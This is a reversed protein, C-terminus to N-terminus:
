AKAQQGALGSDSKNVFSRVALGVPFWVWCALRFDQHILLVFMVMATGVLIGTSVQGLPTADAWVLRLAGWLFGIFCGAALFGYQASFALYTDEIQLANPDRQFALPGVSGPGTGLPHSVVYQLGQVIENRHTEASLDEGKASTSLYDGLGVIPIAVVFLIIAVACCKLLRKWEKMRYALLVLAVAAGLTASRTVACILGAAIVVGPLPNRSYTWWIILGVMCLAAFELPGVMTSSARLGEFGGAHFPSSLEDEGTLSTYFITRPGPGLVFVEIMGLVAVVACIWVAYRAWSQQREASLIAVRGALYALVFELDYQLGKLIGGGAVTHLLALIVFGTLYWDPTSFRFGNKKLLVCIVLLLGVDKFSSLVTMLPLGFFNGLMIALYNFPMQALLLGLVLIPHRIVLWLIAAGLVVALVSMASVFIVMFSAAILGSLVLSIQFMSVMPSKLAQENV